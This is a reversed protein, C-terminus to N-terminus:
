KFKDLDIKPFILSGNTDFKIDLDKIMSSYFKNYLNGRTWDEKSSRDNFTIHGHNPANKVDDPKHANIEM